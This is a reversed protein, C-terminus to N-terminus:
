KVKPAVIPSARPLRPATNRQAPGRGRARKGAHATLKRRTHIPRYAAVCPEYSRTYIPAHTRAGGGGWRGQPKRQAGKGGHRTCTPQALDLSDAVRSAPPAGQTERERPGGPRPGHTSAALISTCDARNRGTGDQRKAVEPGDRPPPPAPRASATCPKILGKRLVKQWTPQQRPTQPQPPRSEPTHATRRKPPSPQGGVLGCGSGRGQGRRHSGTKAYVRVCVCACWHSNGSPSQRRGSTREARGKRPGWKRSVAVCMLGPGAPLGPRCMCVRCTSGLSAGLRTCPTTASQAAKRTTAPSRGAKLRAARWARARVCVCCACCLCVWTHAHTSAYAAARLASCPAARGGVGQSLHRRQQSAGMVMVAATASSSIGQEATRQLDPIRTGSHGAGLRQMYHVRPPDPWFLASDAQRGAADCLVQHSQTALQM